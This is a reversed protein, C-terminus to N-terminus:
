YALRDNFSRDPPNSVFNPDPKGYGVSRSHDANGSELWDGLQAPRREQLALPKGGSIVVLKSASRGNIRLNGPTGFRIDDIQYFLSKSWDNKFWWSDSARLFACAEGRWAIPLASAAGGSLTKQLQELSNILRNQWDALDAQAQTAKARLSSNGPSAQAKALATNAARIAEQLSITIGITSEELVQSKGVPGRSQQALNSAYQSLQLQWYALHANDLKLTNIAELSTIPNAQAIEQKASEQDRAWFQLSSLSLNDGHQRAQAALQSFRAAIAPDLQGGIQLLSLLNNYDTTLQPPANFYSLDQFAEQPLPATNSSNGITKTWDELVVAPLNSRHQILLDYLHLLSSQVDRRAADQHIQQEAPNSGDSALTSQWTNNRDRLQSLAAAIETQPSSSHKLFEDLSLNQQADNATASSNQLDHLFTSILAPAADIGYADLRGQIKQLQSQVQENQQQLQSLETASIKGDQTIRLNLAESNKLQQGLPTLQGSLDSAVQFLKEQWDLAYDINEQLRALPKQPEPSAALEDRLGRIEALFQAIEQSLGPSAATLPLRGFYNGRRAQENTTDLPAPWPYIGGSYSTAGHQQLCRMLTNALRLGLASLLEQRTISLILDNGVLDKQQFERGSLANKGELYDSIRAPKLRNQGALPAGPAILLAVIEGDGDLTLTTQTRDNIAPANDDDRFAPDLAYWIRNGSGDRLEPQDLTVWPFWGVTSPCFSGTLMDARGDGPHNKLGDSDTMFDPCPFSGPRNLDSVARALLSEKARELAIISRQRIQWTHIEPLFLAGLSAFAVLWPLLGALLYGQIKM